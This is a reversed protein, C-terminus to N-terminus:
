KVKWKLLFKQQLVSIIDPYFLVMHKLVNFFRAGTKKHIISQTAVFCITYSTFTGYAAGMLGFHRTFFLCIFINCIAIVTMVSFNVQPMGISDMITGFQKIFPLLLGYLLMIQLIHAAETYSKGAIIMLALKPLIIILISLPVAIALISGVAKEYYFKIKEMNGAEMMKASKPFLIDGIVQSPVDILNAIRLSVGYLAVAATSIQSSIIFQDTNRFVSASINTGFVYKGFNWLKKIWALDLQFTRKLFKWAFISSVGAGTLLGIDFYIILAVLTIPHGSLLHIVILFFSIGQRTLYAWFVGKFDANANQIWEFHSFPILLLLGPIFYYMVTSLMPAQLLHSVPFIFIIILLLILVTIISNLTLAAANIHEHNEEGESNLYKIVANKILSHRIVEIFATYVLFLNWVGMDSKSLSRTLLLVTGVGFLLVAMKQLGSYFGSKIWYAYKQDSM